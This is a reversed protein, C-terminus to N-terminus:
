YNEKDKVQVQPNCPTIYLVKHLECRFYNRKRTSQKIFNAAQTQGLIVAEKDSYSCWWLLIAKMVYGTFFIM